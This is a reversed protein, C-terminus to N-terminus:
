LFQFGICFLAHPPLENEVRNRLLFLDGNRRFLNFLTFDPALPALLNYLM